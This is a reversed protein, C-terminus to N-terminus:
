CDLSGGVLWNGNEGTAEAVEVEDAAALVEDVRLDVRKQQNREAVVPEDFGAGFEFALELTRGGTARIGTRDGLMEVVKLGVVDGVRKKRDGGATEQRGEADEVLPEIGDPNAGQLGVRQDKGEGGGVTVSQHEAAAKGDVHALM